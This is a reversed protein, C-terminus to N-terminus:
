IFISIYHSELSILVDELLSKPSPQVQITNSVYTTALLVQHKKLLMGEGQLIMKLVVNCQEPSIIQDKDEDAFEPPCSEKTAPLEVWKQRTPARVKLKHKTVSLNTSQQSFTWGKFGNLAQWWMCPDLLCFVAKIVISAMHLPFVVLRRFVDPCERVLYHFAWRLNKHDQLIWQCHNNCYYLCSFQSTSFM